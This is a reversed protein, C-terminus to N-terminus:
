RHRNRTLAVVCQPIEGSPFFQWLVLLWLLSAPLGHAVDAFIGATLVLIAVLTWLGVLVLFDKRSVLTGVKLFARATGFLKFAMVAATFWPLIQLVLGRWSPDKYLWMACGIVLGLVIMGQWVSFVIRWRNGTLVVAMSQVMTHWTAVVLALIVIPNTLWQWFRPYNISFDRWFGLAQESPWNMHSSTAIVPVLLISFLIWGFATVAAACKMKAFALSATSLPRTAVTPHVSLDPSWADAKAIANGIAGAFLIMGFFPGSFNVLTQITGLYLAASLPYTFVFLAMTVGFAAALFVGKRRWEFWLQASARSAFTGSRRPVFDLVLELLKGTWGRWQGRRDRTVGAIAGVVAVVAVAFVGGFWRAEGGPFKSFPGVLAVYLFGYMTAVLAVVRIWRFRHLSWILAQASVLTAVFLLAHWALRPGEIPRSWYVAITFEWAVTAVLTLAVGLLVPWIVLSSTRMPLTYMWSPFGSFHGRSDNATYSCIWILSVFTAVASFGQLAGISEHGPPTVWECLACFPILGFAFLLWGRNKACIEWVIAQAPSRM